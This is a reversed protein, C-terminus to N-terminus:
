NTFMWVTCVKKAFPLTTETKGCYHRVGEDQCHFKLGKQARQQGSQYGRTMETYFTQRLIHYVCAPLPRTNHWGMYGCSWRVLWRYVVARLFRVFCIMFCLSYSCWKNQNCVTSQYCCNGFIPLHSAKVIKGSVKM